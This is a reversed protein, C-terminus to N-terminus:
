RVAVAEEQVIGELVSALVEPWPCLHTSGAEDDHWLGLENTGIVSAGPHM